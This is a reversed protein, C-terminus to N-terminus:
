AATEHQRVQDRGANKAEYLASDAQSLLKELTDGPHLPEAARLGMSVTAHMTSGDRQGFPHERMQRNIREAVALAQEATANPLLLAFEEGGIRGFLDQARLNHLVLTTFHRLVADGQAHGFTDNIRKFHDMDSMLVAISGGEIALRQVLRSGREMLTRRSLANTLEDHNLAFRLKRLARARLEHAVSITIPALSILAIGLQFSIAGQTLQQSFGVVGSAQLLATASVGTLLTLLATGWVGYSMACWVMAPVLYGVAGPGNLLYVLGLSVMLAIFPLRPTGARPRLLQRWRWLWPWGRPAALVVPLILLMDFLEGVFWRALTPWAASGFIHMSALTGPVASGLAAIASGALLHLVSHQRKFDLTSSGQRRLYVWGAAVGLLNSANMAFATYGSSGTALDAAAFAAFAALWTFGHRALLRNRLLLGLMLANAPWITAIFGSPRSLIGAACALFLVAALVAQDRWLAHLLPSPAHQTQM